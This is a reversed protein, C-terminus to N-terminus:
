LILKRDFPIYALLKISLALHCQDMLTICLGM